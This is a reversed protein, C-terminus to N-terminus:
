APKCDKGKRFSSLHIRTQYSVNNRSVQQMPAGHENKEAFHPFRMYLLQLFIFPKISVQDKSKMVKMLDRLGTTIGDELADGQLSGSLGAM